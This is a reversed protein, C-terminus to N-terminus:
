EVSMKLYLSSANSPGAPVAFVEVIRTRAFCIPKSIKSHLFAIPSLEDVMKPENIIWKQYRYKEYVNEDGPSGDSPVNPRYGRPSLEGSVSANNEFNSAKRLRADLQWLMNETLSVADGEWEWDDM